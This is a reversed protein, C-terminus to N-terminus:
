GTRGLRLQAQLALDRGLHEFQYGLTATVTHIGGTFLLVSGDLGGAAMRTLNSPNSAVLGRVAGYALLLGGAGGMISLLVSETLLQRALRWRGAGM